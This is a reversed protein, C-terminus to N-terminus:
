GAMLSRLKQRVDIIEPMTLDELESFFLQRVWRARAMEWFVFNQVLGQKYLANPVFTTHTITPAAGNSSPHFHWSGFQPSETWSRSEMFNLLPAAEVLNDDAWFPLQMTVLLGNGLETHYHDTLCRILISDQGFPIEASLGTPDGNAFCGETNGFSNAFNKFEDSGLWKSSSVGAPLFIQESVKLIDDVIHRKHNQVFASQGEGLLGPLNDGHIEAHIPQIIAMTAFFRPLWGALNTDIYISSFLSLDCPAKMGEYMGFFVAPPYVLSYAASASLALDNLRSCATPNDYPFDSVVKTEVSLRVGGKRPEVGMISLTQYSQDDKNAEVARVSVLYNGPTWDFGKPGRAVLDIDDVKWISLAQELANKILVESSM